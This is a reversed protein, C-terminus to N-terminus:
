LPIICGDDNEPFICKFNYKEQEEISFIQHLIDENYNFYFNIVKSYDRNRKNSKYIVRSLTEKNPLNYASGDTSIIFNYCEIANLLDFTTNFKSGHHSLQMYDVKLPQNPPYKYPNDEQIKYISNLIDIPHSDSLFLITKGNFEFLFAISSPNYPNQRLYSESHVLDKRQALDEIKFHYDRTKSSSSIKSSTKKDLNNLRIEFPSLITIEPGWLDDFYDLAKIPSLNWNCSVKSLYDRVKIGHKVSIKKDTKSSIKVNDGFNFWWLNVNKKDFEDDELFEVAGGIHDSDIHSIILLDIKELSEYINEIETKIAKYYAKSRGLDILINHYIKDTGKYRIRISDGDGAPLFKIYEQM